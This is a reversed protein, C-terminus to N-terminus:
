DGCSLGITPGIFTFGDAMASINKQYNFQNPEHLTPLLVSSVPLPSTTVTYELTQTTQDSFNFTVTVINDMDAHLGAVPIFLNQAFGDKPYMFSIDSIGDSGAIDVKVQAAVETRICILAALPNCRYPDLIILPNSADPLTNNFNDQITQTTVDHEIKLNRILIGPATASVM